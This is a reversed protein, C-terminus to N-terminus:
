GSPRGRTAKHLEKPLGEEASWQRALDRHGKLHTGCKEKLDSDRTAVAHEWLERFLAESHEELIKNELFDRVEDSSGFTKLTKMPAKSKWSWNSVLEELVKKCLGAPKEEFIADVLDPTLKKPLVEFRDFLLKLAPYDVLRLWAIIKALDDNSLIATLEREVFSEVRASHEAGLPISDLISNIIVLRESSKLGPRALEDLLKEECAAVLPTVTYCEAARILLSLDLDPDDPLEGTQIFRLVELLQDEQDDNDDSDDPSLLPLKLTWKGDDDEQAMEVPFGVGAGDDDEAVFYKAFHSYSRLKEMEVSIIHDGVQVEMMGKKEIEALLKALEAKTPATGTRAELIATLERRIRKSKKM